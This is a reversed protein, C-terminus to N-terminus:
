FTIEQEGEAEAKDGDNADSKSEDAPSSEKEMTYGPYREVYPKTGGIYGLPLQDQGGMILWMDKKYLNKIRGSMKKSIFLRMFALLASMWWPSGTLICSKMKFPMVGYFMANMDNEIPKISKQFSLMTGFGMTGMDQLVICGESCSVDDFMGQLMLAWFYRMLDNLDCGGEAKLKSMAEMDTRDLDIVWALAGGYTQEPVKINMIQSAEVIDPSTIDVPTSFYPEYMKLQYDAFTELRRFAKSVNFSDELRDNPKQSWLLFARHVDNRTKGLCPHKVDDCDLHLSRYMFKEVKDGETPIMSVLTELATAYSSVRVDGKKDKGDMNNMAKAENMMSQKMQQEDEKATTSTTLSAM